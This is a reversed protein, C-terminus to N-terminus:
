PSTVRLNFGGASYGRVMLYHTGTSTPNITCQEVGMGALYPRCEWTTTSISAERHTYLDPDGSSPTLLVSYRQGANVPVSYKLEAGQGVNATTSSGVALPSFGNSGGGGGGGGCQAPYDGCCDGYGVCALDCWCSGSPSAGGCAGQCSNAGGGSGGSSGTGTGTGSGSSGSGSSGSGSGASSQVRLQYAGVGNVTNYHRVKVYYTGAQLGAQTVQCNYGVGGDDDYALSAGGGNVLTCFTDTSGETSVTVSGSTGLTFAFVDVDGGAELNGGTLAGLAVPTANSTSDSHDDNGASTAANNTIYTIPAVFGNANSPNSCNSDGIAGWNTSPYATGPRM